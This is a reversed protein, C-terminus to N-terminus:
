FHRQKKEILGTSSFWIAIAQMMHILLGVSSGIEYEWSRSTIASKTLYQFGKHFNQNPSLDIAILVCITLLM